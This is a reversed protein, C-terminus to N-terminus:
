GRRLAQATSSTMLTAERARLLADLKRRPLRGASFYQGDVLVLPNLAPRHEAVLRLGETSAIEVERVDISHRRAVDALYEKAEDCFHCAPATVM